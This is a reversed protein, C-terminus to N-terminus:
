FTVNIGVNFNQMIPYLYGWTGEPHEPDVFDLKSLTFLNYGNVYVRAREIRAKRTIAVPLTYGLEVSKLRLYSADYTTQECRKYNVGYSGADRTTPWKGAIWSGQEDQHYRDYFHALGNGGFCLPYQLQEFYIVNFGAGGQFLMNLDFGKWGATLTAGYTIKPNGNDNMHEFSTPYVDNDDIVGDGNWDEYKWDGPLQTAGGNGDQIASNWIDQKSVFQGNSGLTWGIDNYRNSYKNRWYDYSNVADGEARDHWQSRTIGMNLTIGYTFDRITNRHGLMVEFGKYLDGNLNETPLGAGLLGPVEGSRTGMLGDRYRWFFDVQGSFLGNWMEVDTGINLTHSTYWTLAENPLSRFGLGNYAEDGFVYANGPYDYGSIYRYASQSDDGLVGYSARLKWNTLFSFQESDRIFSEESVRYGLAGAPFFGWRHGKAFKSSGDTRFSFEVLYKSLYDYNIRGIYAMNTNKIRQGSNSSGEQELKSGAFLEDVADMEFNRKAYFNDQEMKTQEYLFLVKVNHKEGFLREYNLSAQWQQQSGEWFSRRISSPTSYLQPLYSESPADYNYLTYAKQFQKQTTTQYDYAYLLKASLGPLFPLSYTLSFTSNISRNNNRKYGAIGKDTIALPNIGYMVDQMYNENDNAYPRDTPKLMWISKFIEWTDKYPQNKQDNMAGVLVDLKLNKTIAFGLNARLNLREYDLDNTKWIGEEQYYGFSLFYEVKENNGSLSVNHQTQPVVKNVALDYWDTAGERRFREVDSPTFTADIGRGMNRDAERVLEAYQWANLVDPMGTPTQIGINGSYEIKSKGDTGGKRTTVLLVGNAARVGYIAASADKLVSVSEIDHADLRQFANDDRIIGDIVILPAGFGRIDLKSSYAGPEGTRQQVRVGPLKGSLMDKVNATTSTKIEKNTVSSVSGTLTAKRQSGYGVVVVEDILHEDERLTINVTTGSQVQQEVIQYGIYSFVITAQQSKMEIQFNGDFDTITGIQTNKIRVNVGPLSEGIADTVRGR